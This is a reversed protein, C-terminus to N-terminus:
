KKANEEHAMVFGTIMDNLLKNDRDKDSVKIKDPSIQWDINLTPDNFLIGVESQKNYFADCKYLVEAKESLVSFGHAFGKPLYLQKKNEASLEIYYVKGYTASGQRIDVGVDLIKGSLVRVLKSQAFPPLQFHLGRVVGYESSSQNDQVFDIDIGYQSFVKSNYSEFFYGRSDEFVAPEFVVLGSFGTEVFAM